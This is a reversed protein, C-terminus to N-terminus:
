ECDICGIRKLIELAMLGHGYDSPHVGDPCIKEQVADGREMDKQFAAPIDVWLDAYEQGLDALLKGKRDFDEHWSIKAPDSDLLWPQLVMVRTGELDNRIRQILERVHSRTVEAPIPNGEAWGHWTDNIGILIFVYQPKLALLDKEYRRLLDASVNGSVGRNFFRIHQNPFLVSYLAAIKAAYGKGLDQGNGKDRGADTISDGYFLVTSGETFFEKM